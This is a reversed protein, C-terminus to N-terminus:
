KGFFVYLTIRCKHVTFVSEVHENGDIMWSLEQREIDEM